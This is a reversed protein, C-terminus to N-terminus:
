PHREGVRVAARLPQDRGAAPLAELLRGLLGPRDYSGTAPRGHLDEEDGVQKGVGGLGGTADVVGTEGMMEGTAALDADERRTRRKRQQAASRRRSRLIVAKPRHERERAVDRLGPGAYVM